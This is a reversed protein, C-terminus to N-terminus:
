KGDFLSWPGRHKSFDIAKSKEGEKYDQRIKFIQGPFILDPDKISAKNAWYILPWMFPNLYERKSIRWLCDGRKVTYNKFDGTTEKVPAFGAALEEKIKDLMAILEDLSSQAASCNCKMLYGEVENYKDMLMNLDRVRDAAILDQKISLIEDNVEALRAKVSSCVKSAGEGLRQAEEAKSKAYLL